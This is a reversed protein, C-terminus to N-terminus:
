VNLYDIIHLLNWQILCHIWMKKRIDLKFTVPSFGDAFTYSEQLPMSLCYHENSYCHWSINLRAMIYAVTDVHMDVSVFWGKNINISPPPTTKYVNKVLKLCMYSNVWAHFGHLIVQKQETHFCPHLIETCILYHYFSINMTHHHKVWARLSIYASM